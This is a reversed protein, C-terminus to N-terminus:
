DITVSFAVTQSSSGAAIDGLSVNIFNVPTAVRFFGADGDSEDDGLSTSGLTLSNPTYTTNEPINDTVRVNQATGTGTGTVNVVISYRITAGPIPDDGGFPDTILATKTIEVEVTSIVYTSTIELQGEFHGVIADTGDEGAGSLIDGATNGAPVSQSTITLKSHGVANEVLDGGTGSVTPIENFVFVTMSNNEPDGGDLTLPSVYLEDGGVGSDYIGNGNSDYYINVLSPNFDGDVNNDIVLNYRDIGNGTNTITFVVMENPDGPSVPVGTGTNQWVVNAELLEAVITTVPESTVTYDATGVNYIATATNTILTGAPTGAAMLKSPVVLAMLVFVAFLKQQM